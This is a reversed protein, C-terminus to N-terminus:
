KNNQKTLDSKLLFIFFYGRQDFVNEIKLLEKNM